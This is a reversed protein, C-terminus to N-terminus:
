NQNLQQQAPPTLVTGPQIVGRPQISQSQAATASVLLIYVLAALLGGFGHRAISRIIM